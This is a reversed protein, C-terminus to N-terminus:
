MRQSLFVSLDQPSIDRRIIAGKEDLLFNSPFYNISLLGVTLKGSSDLYQPWMLGNAQITEKWTGKDTSKDISIGVINFGRAQYTTFLNKLKPFQQLCPGCHSFWFDILTYKSKHALSLSVSKNGVDVLHLSPFIQGIATVKSSNLRQAIMKGTPTNKLSVSLAHYLSDLIPQYGEGMDRVLQWLIVYSTPHQTAYTLYGLQQQHILRARNQSFATQLSDLLHPNTTVAKLDIYREFAQERQKSIPSVYNAIFRNYEAMTKTALQPTERLSDIHCTITQSGPEILFYNSIYGPSIRIRYSGPYAMKGALLFRGQTIKAQYNNNLNADFGEGSPVLTVTGTDCNVIGKLRYTLNRVQGFAISHAFFFAIALLMCSGLKM